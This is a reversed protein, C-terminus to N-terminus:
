QKSAFQKSLDSFYNDDYKNAIAQVKSVVELLDRQEGCHRNNQMFREASLKVKVRFGASVKAFVKAKSYNEAENYEWMKEKSDAFLRWHNLFDVVEWSCECREDLNDLDRLHKHIDSHTITTVELCREQTLVAIKRSYILQDSVSYLYQEARDKNTSAKNVAKVINSAAANRQDFAKDWSDLCVNALDNAM